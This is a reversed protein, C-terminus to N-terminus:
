QQVVMSSLHVTPLLELFIEFFYNFIYKYKKSCSIQYKISFMTRFYGQVNRFNVKLFNIKKKKNDTFHIEM